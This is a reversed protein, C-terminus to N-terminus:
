GASTKTERPRPRLMIFTFIAFFSLPLPLTLLGVAGVGWLATVPSLFFPLLSGAALSLPWAWSGLFALVSAWAPIDDLSEQSIVGCAILAIGQCLSIVTIAVLFCLALPWGYSFFGVICALPFLAVSTVSRAYVGSMLRTSLAPKPRQATTEMLLTKDKTKKSCDPLCSFKNRSPSPCGPLRLSRASEPSPIPM